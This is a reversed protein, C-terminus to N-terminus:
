SKWLEARLFSVGNEPGTAGTAVYKGCALLKIAAGPDVQGCSVGDARIIEVPHLQHRLLATAQDNEFQTM